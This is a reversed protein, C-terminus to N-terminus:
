RIERSWCDNDGFQFKSTKVHPAGRFDLGDRLIRQDDTIVNLLRM